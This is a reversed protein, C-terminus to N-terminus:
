SVCCCTDIKPKKKNKKPTADDPRDEFVNDNIEVEEFEFWEEDSSSHHSQLRHVSLASNTGILKARSKKRSVETMSRGRFGDGCSENGFQLSQSKSLNRKTGFEEARLINELRSKLIRPSVSKPKKEEPLPSHSDVSEPTYPDHSLMDRTYPEHLLRSDVVNFSPTGKVYDSMDTVSIQIKAYSQCCKCAASAPVCEVHPCCRITGSNRLIDM